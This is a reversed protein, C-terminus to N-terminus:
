RSCDRSFAPRELNSLDKLPSIWTYSGGHEGGIRTEHMGWDSETYVHPVEFRSGTVRDDKMETAWFIEKRLTMEWQRALDGECELSDPLIIENWGNEPDCFSWRVPPKSPM